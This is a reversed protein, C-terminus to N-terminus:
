ESMRSVWKEFISCDHKGGHQELFTRAAFMTKVAEIPTLEKLALRIDSLNGNIYDLAIKEAKM